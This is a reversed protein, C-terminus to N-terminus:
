VILKVLVAITKDIDQKTTLRGMTFRLAARAQEDSLGIAALVHSPEDSSASCASGVACLVGHEDLSMMLRENDQGAITIHVNNPIVHKGTGNIRVNPIKTELESIFHKQIQQLRLSEEKKLEQALKLSASFGIINAVNETGSRLGREQGGGLVLPNMKVKSSVYLVGSQKPGYLKGGNLTMMDVGLKNALVNLYNGAQCADTHFYLPLANGAKKREKIINKILEAVSSLPQISGIENNVYMISVLVTKDNIQGRLGDIDVIGSPLVKVLKSTYAAAPQLVSDHEIASVVCNAGPHAEMVGRIALNNAETGGATFIIEVPKAGIIKAVVERATAIDRAVSKAALYLASPNYFLEGFYPEMAALVKKDIPTAAAYDLYITQKM